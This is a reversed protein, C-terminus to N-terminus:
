GLTAITSCDYNKDLIEPVFPALTPKIYTYDADKGGPMAAVSITTGATTLVGFIVLSGGLTVPTFIIAAAGGLIGLTTGGISWGWKKLTGEKIFSVIILYDAAELHITDKKLNEVDGLPFSKLNVGMFEQLYSIGNAQKKSDMKAYVDYLSVTKISDKISPDMEKDLTFKSTYLCYAEETWGREIFNLRGKGTMVYDAYLSDALLDAVEDKSKVTVYKVPNTSTSKLDACGTRKDTICVRETYCKLPLNEKFELKWLTASNRAELSATCSERITDGRVELQSLAYLIAIFVLILVLVTSIMAVPAISKKNKLEAM